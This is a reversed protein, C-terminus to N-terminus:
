YAAPCLTLLRYHLRPRVLVILACTSARQPRPPACEVQARTLNRKVDVYEFGLLPLSKELQIVDCEFQEHTSLGDGPGACANAIILAVGKLIRPRAALQSARRIRALELARKRLVEKSDEPGMIKQLTTRAPVPNKKLIHAMQELADLEEAEAEEESGPEDGEQNLARDAEAM